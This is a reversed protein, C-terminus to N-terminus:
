ELVVAYLRGYFIGDMDLFRVGLGALWGDVVDCIHTRRLLSIYLYNSRTLSMFTRSFQEAAGINGLFWWMWDLVKILWSLLGMMWGLGYVRWLAM